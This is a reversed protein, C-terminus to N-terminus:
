PCVAEHANLMFNLSEIWIMRNKLTTLGLDLLTFISPYETSM